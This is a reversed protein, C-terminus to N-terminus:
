SANWSQYPVPFWKRRSSEPHAAEPSIDPGQGSCLLGQLKRPRKVAPLNIQVTCLRLCEFCGIRTCIRRLTRPVKAACEIACTILSWTSLKRNPVRMESSVKALSVLSAPQPGRRKTTTDSLPVRENHVCNVYPMRQFVLRITHSRPSTTLSVIRYYSVLTVCRCRESLRQTVIDLPIAVM